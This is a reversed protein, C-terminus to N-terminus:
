QLTYTSTFHAITRFKKLIAEYRKNGFAKLGDKINLEKLFEQAHTKPISMALQSNTQTLAFQVRRALKPRLNYQYNIRTDESEETETVQRNSSNKESLINM